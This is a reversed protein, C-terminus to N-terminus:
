SCLSSQGLIPHEENMPVYQASGYVESTSTVIIKEVNLDRSAQLVNM